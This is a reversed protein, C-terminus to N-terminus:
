SSASSGPASADKLPAEAETHEVHASDSKLLPEAESQEVPASANKLLAEEEDRWTKESLFDDMEKDTTCIDSIDVYLGSVEALRFIEDIEDETYVSAYRHYSDPLSATLMDFYTELEEYEWERFTVYAIKTAMWLSNFHKLVLGSIPADTRDSPGILEDLWQRDENSFGRAFGDRLIGFNHGNSALMSAGFMNEERYARDARWFWTKGRPQFVVILWLIQGDHAPPTVMIDSFLNCIMTGKTACCQHAERLNPGAPSVCLLMEAPMLRRKRIRLSLHLAVTLFRNGQLFVSSPNHFVSLEVSDLVVSRWPDLMRYATARQSAIVEYGSYGGSSVHSTGFSLPHRREQWPEFSDFRMRRECERFLEPLAKEYSPGLTGRSKTEEETWFFTENAENKSSRGGPYTLYLNERFSAESSYSFKACFPFAPSSQVFARRTKNNLEVRSKFAIIDPVVWVRSISAFGSIALISLSCWWNGTRLGLYLAVYGFVMLMLNFISFLQPVVELELRWIDHQYDTSSIWDYFRALTIVLGVAWSSRGLGHLYDAYVSTPRRTLMSDCSITFSGPLSAFERGRPDSSSHISFFGARKMNSFNFTFETTLDDVVSATYYAGIFSCVLGISILVTNYVDRQSWWNLYLVTASMAVCAASFAMPTVWKSSNNGDLGAMLGASVGKVAACTSVLGRVQEDTAISAALAVEEQSIKFTFSIYLEGLATETGSPWAPSSLLKNTEKWFCEIAEFAERVTGEKKGHVYLIALKEPDPNAVHELVYGKLEAGVGGVSASSVDELLEMRTELQRGILRKLGRFGMIRILTTVATILGIPGVAHLLYHSRNQMVKFYAKVHKEGLLILLPVINAVLTAWVDGSSTISNDAGTGSEQRPSLQPTSGSSSFPSPWAFAVAALALHLSFTTIPVSLM